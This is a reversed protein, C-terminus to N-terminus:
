VHLYQRRFERPSAGKLALFRRNFHSLNQFGSDFAIESVSRTGEILERCARGIRLETLYGVLTKGTARKFARTFAPISLHALAAAEPLTIGETFRADLVRCVADIRGSASPRPGPTYARSALPVARRERALRGLFDLLGLYRAPGARRELDKMRAALGRGPFRLGRSARELLARVARFEPAAPVLDNRFQCFLAEHLGGRAPDSAWTHPLHPGLLVLDGDAYPEVSDGVFRRGRSRLILTIEFEPHFHWAFGFGRDRRRRCLFSAGSQPAVKELYALM